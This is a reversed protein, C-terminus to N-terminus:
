RAVCVAYARAVIGSTAATVSANRIVVNWAAGDASPYSSSLVLVGQTSQMQAGGGIARKGGPCAALGSVSAFGNIGFPSFAMDVM